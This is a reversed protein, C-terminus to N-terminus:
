CRPSGTSRARSCGPRRRLDPPDPAPAAPRRRQRRAPPPRRDGDARPRRGAATRSGELDWALQQLRRPTWGPAQGVSVADYGGQLALAAVTDLDGVVPVGNIRRAGDPGAGTPTCVGAVQWGHHPARRTRDISRVGGVGAHRRRPRAGHGQGRRAPPAAAQAAADPRRRVARRRVAARRVGVAPGRPLELALGALAVVVAAGVFGRLLRTFELSGQGLVSPEWARAVRLAAVTLAVVVTGALLVSESTADGWLGYLAASAVVALWTSPLSGATYRHQWRLRDPAPQPVPAHPTRQAPLPVTAHRGVGGLDRRLEATM